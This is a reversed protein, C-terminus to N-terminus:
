KREYLKYHPTSLTQKYNEKVARMFERSYREDCNFDNFVFGGLRKNEIDAIMASEDWAGIEHMHTMMIPQFYLRRDANYLLVMNDAVIEGKIKQLNPIIIESDAIKELLGQKQVHWPRNIDTVSLILQVFLTLIILMNVAIYRKDNINQLFWALALGFVLSNVTIFELYYNYNAGFKGISLSMILAFIWFLSLATKEYDKGCLSNVVFILSCLFILWHEALMTGTKNFAQQWSFANINASIHHTFFLGDTLFCGIAFIVLGAAAMTTALKLASKRDYILASFFCAAAGAFLSQKTYVALLFFLTAVIIKKNKEKISLFAAVGIIEFLVGLLDVRMLISWNQAYYNGIFLGAALAAIIASSKKSLGERDANFVLYYIVGGILLMSLMSILRGAMLFDETAISFLLTLFHYVPPYNMVIYPATQLPTYVPLSYAIMSVQHIIPGEVHDIEYPYNLAFFAYDAWNILHIFFAGLLLAALLFFARSYFKEM